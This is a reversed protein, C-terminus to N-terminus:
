AFQEGSRGPPGTVRPPGARGPQGAARTQLEDFLARRRESDM